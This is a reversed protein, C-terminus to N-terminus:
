PAQALFRQVSVLAAGVGLVVGALSLLLLWSGPLFALQGALALGFAEQLRSAVLRHVLWLGGAALGGGLTGHVVGEVIFPVAIFAGTAGVLRETELEDRRNYVILHVTNMVLFLAAVLILTGLVAGLLKLLSLFAHFRETWQQGFDVSDVVPSRIEEAFSAIAADMDAAPPALTVEISAPLVDDGLEALVPATDPVHEALWTAAEAESVYRVAAVRPDAALRDRLAFREDEPTDPKFYVSLHVDQNWTRVIRDVNYQVSLYVGMLLLAAAIVGTAVANLYLNEWLSRAARRLIHATTGKM